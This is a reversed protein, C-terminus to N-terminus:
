EGNSLQESIQAGKEADMAAMIQGASKGKMSALIKVVKDMSMKDMIKAAKAADMASYVAVLHTIKEDQAAQQKEAIERAMTTLRTQLENLQEIKADVEAQLPALEQEKKVVAAEREKLEQEKKKLNDTAAKADVDATKVEAASGDKAMAIDTVPIKLDEFHLYIVSMVLKVALLGVIFLVAVVLINPKLSIGERTKVRGKRKDGKTGHYEAQREM